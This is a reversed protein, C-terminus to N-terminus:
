PSRPAPTPGRRETRPPVPPQRRHLAREAHEARIEARRAAAWARAAEERALAAERQAQAAQNRAQEAQAQAHIAAANALQLRSQVELVFAQDPHAAALKRFEADKIAALLNRAPDLQRQASALLNELATVAQTQTRTARSALDGWNRSRLMGDLMKRVVGTAASSAGAADLQADIQEVENLLEHRRQTFSERLAEVKLTHTDQAVAWWATLLGAGALAICRTKM